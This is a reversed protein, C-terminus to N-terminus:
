QISHKYPTFNKVSIDWFDTKKEFGLEAYHNKVLMNKETPIYEGVLTKIGNDALDSLIRNLVYKEVDRKLVRCSMLWTEIFAEDEATKKIVIMSILGYDGFKDQLKVSYTFYSSNNAMAAIDSVAYRITRLNFQNSRQSLQALRPFDNEQFAEITGKMELSLLYDDMNKFSMQQAKRLSEDRYQLTRTLDGSSFSTTEFLNLGILFDLYLSPDSPLEPICIAPHEKRVLEREAPNDDIFVMSDFGINLVSQIYTINDAKNNWNAVFVSIDELKLIMESHNLFPERAIDESNKSCIALIVGRNKLQKIWKQFNSFAKGIGLAGIQINDLGDDGIIGGWLTNDLDLILCKKLKGEFSLVQRVLAEALDVHFDLSFLLDSSVYLSWDRVNEIGKRFILKNIDCLYVNDNAASLNIMDVNLVNVQHYFSESTKSYYNGFVGDDLLEYSTFIIKAKLGNEDMMRVLEQLSNIHTKPFNKKDETHYFSEQLKFTSQTIIVYDPAFSYIGADPNIIEPLIQDYDSEYIEINVQNLLGQARIAKQLFHTTYNGLIALKVKRFDDHYLKRTNKILLNFDMKRFIVHQTVAIRSTLFAFILM